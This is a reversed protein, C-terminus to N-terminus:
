NIKIVINHYVLKLYDKIVKNVKILIKFDTKNLNSNLIGRKYVVYKCVRM